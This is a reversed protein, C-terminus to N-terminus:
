DLVAHGHGILALHAGFSDVEDHLAADHQFQGLESEARGGDEELSIEHSRTQLLRAAAHRLGDM